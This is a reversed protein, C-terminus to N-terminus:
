TYKATINERSEYPLLLEWVSLLVQHVERNRLVLYNYCYSLCQRDEAVIDPIQRLQLILEELRGSLQENKKRYEIITEYLKDRVECKMIDNDTYSGVYVLLDSAQKKLKTYEELCINLEKIREGYNKELELSFVNDKKYNAIIDEIETLIEQSSRHVDSGYERLSNKTSM